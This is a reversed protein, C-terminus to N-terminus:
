RGEIDTNRELYELTPKAPTMLTTAGIPNVVLVDSWDSEAGRVGPTTPGWYIHSFNGRFTSITIRRESGTNRPTEPGKSTTVHHVLGQGIIEDVVSSSSPLDDPLDEPGVDSGPAPLAPVLDAKYASVLRWM